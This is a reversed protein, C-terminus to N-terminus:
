WAGPRGCLLWVAAIVGGMILMNVGIGFTDSDTWSAPRKGACIPCEVTDRIHAECYVPM